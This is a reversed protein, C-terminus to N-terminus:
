LTGPRVNSKESMDIIKADNYYTLKSATSVDHKLEQTAQVKAYSAGSLEVYARKACYDKADIKCAGSSEIDLSNGTGKLEINSAGSCEIEFTSNSGEYKFKSAGSLECKVDDMDGTMTLNSAGSGDVEAREFHGTLSLNSAGSCDVSLEKGSVYLENGFKSAGSMDVELNDAKFKGDFYIVSAGSLDIENIGTMEVYVKVTKVKSALNMRQFRAPLQHFGLYLVSNASSHDVKIHSEFDKVVKEMETDYVLEVVKSNGHKVHIEFIMSFTDNVHVGEVKGVNFKLTKEAATASIALTAALVLVTFLRRM